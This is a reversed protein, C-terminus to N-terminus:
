YVATSDTVCTGFHTLVHKHHEVANLHEFGECSGGHPGLLGCPPLCGQVVAGLGLVQTLRGNGNAVAVFFLSCIFDSQMCYWGRGIPPLRLLSAQITAETVVSYFLVWTPSNAHTVASLM